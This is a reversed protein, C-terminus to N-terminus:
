QVVESTKMQQELRAVAWLALDIYRALLHEDPIQRLKGDNLLMGARAMLLVGFDLATRNPNENTYAAALVLELFAARVSPSLGDFEAITM